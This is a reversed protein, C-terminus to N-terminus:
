KTRRFASFHSVLVPKWVIRVEVHYFDHTFPDTNRNPIVWYMNFKSDPAVM